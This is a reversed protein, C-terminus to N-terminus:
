SEVRRITDFDLTTPKVRRSSDVEARVLVEFNIAGTLRNALDLSALRLHNRMAISTDILAIAAGLTGYTTTGHLLVVRASPNYPNPAALISGWDDIVGKTDDDGAYRTPRIPQDDWCLGEGSSPYHVKSNLMQLLDRTVGNGEGAVCGPGGLVVLDGNKAGHPMEEDLYSVVNANPFRRGFFSSLELLADRDEFNDLHVYNAEDSDSFRTPESERACVISISRTDSPFWVKRVFEARASETGERALVDRVVDIMEPLFEEPIADLTEYSGALLDAIDAPPLPKTNRRMVVVRKMLAMAFGLEYMVNPNVPMTPDSQSIDAILFDSRRIEERVSAMLPRGYENGFFFLPCGVAIDDSGFDACAAAVLKRIEARFAEVGGEYAADAFAHSIFGRIIKM